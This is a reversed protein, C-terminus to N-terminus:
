FLYLITVIIHVNYISNNSLFEFYTPSLIM